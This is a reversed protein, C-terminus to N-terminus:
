EIIAESAIKQFAFRIDSADGNGFGQRQIMLIYIINKVPDAWYQTGFAGGHGFTGESLMGTVGSPHRVVGFGLGFGMGDTFGTQLDGTNVKTMERVSQETLIRQNNFIGGNLITQMWIYMDHATSLLGGEPRPFGMLWGPEPGTVLSSDDSPQYLTAVIDWSKNASYFITNKMGLPIFIRESLFEEYKKGSLVEVIRAAATIGSGSYSWQSGPQFLLPHGSIKLIYEKISSVLSAEPLSSLGSTHTLLDRITIDRAPRILFARDDTRESVLWMNRFEPLFKEVPDDLKLKGEESLMMISAAVFPKTMSAIRFVTNRTMPLRGQIDQMGVAEFSVIQGNRAVLTVVGAIKEEDVFIEMQQRIGTLKLSDMGSGTVRVNIKEDDPLIEKPTGPKNNCAGLIIAVVVILCSLRLPISKTKNLPKM